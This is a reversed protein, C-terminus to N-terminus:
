KVKGFREPDTAYAKRFAELNRKGGAFIGADIFNDWNVGGM